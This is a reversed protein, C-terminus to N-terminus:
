WSAFIQLMLKEGRFDAISRLEGSQSDPLRIVPFPAGIGLTIEAQSPTSLLMIVGLTILPYKRATKMPNQVNAQLM